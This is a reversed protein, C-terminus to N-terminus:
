GNSVEHDSYRYARLHPKFNWIMISGDLSGSVLQKMNPNFVVSTVADKHGRFSRELIPDETMLGLDTM